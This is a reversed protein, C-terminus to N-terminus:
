NIWGLIDETKMLILYEKNIKKKEGWENCLRRISVKELRREDNVKYNWQKEVEFLIFGLIWKGM